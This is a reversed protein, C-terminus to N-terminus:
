SPTDAAAPTLSLEGTPDDGCQDCPDTHQYARLLRTGSENLRVVFAGTGPLLELGHFPEWEVDTAPFDLKTGRPVRRFRARETDFLWTSNCSEVVQVEVGSLQARRLDLEEHDSVPSYNGRADRVTVM